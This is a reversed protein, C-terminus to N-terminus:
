STKEMYGDKQTNIKALTRPQEATEKEQVAFTLPKVVEVIMQKLALAYSQFAAMEGNTTLGQKYPKIVPDELASLMQTFLEDLTVNVFDM